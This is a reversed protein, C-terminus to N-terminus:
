GQNVYNRIWKQLKPDNPDHSILGQETLKKFKKYPDNKGGQKRLTNEDNLYLYLIIRFKTSFSFFLRYRKLGQKYRRYRKLEGKLRYEPRNPDSPIRKVTAKYVRAALKVTEHRTLENPTLTKKLEAVQRNLEATRQFFIEHTKLLYNNMKM